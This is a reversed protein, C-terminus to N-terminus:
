ESPLSGSGSDVWSNKQRVKKKGGKCAKVHPKKVTSTEVHRSKTPAPFVWLSDNSGKRMELVAAVRPSVPIRRRANDTKGYQIEVQGDRVSSWQLPLV